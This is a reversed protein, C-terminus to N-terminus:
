VIWGEVEEGEGMGREVGKGACRRAWEAHVAVVALLGGMWVEWAGSGAGVAVWSVGMRLPCALAFLVAYNRVAAHTRHLANTVVLRNTRTSVVQTSLNPPPDTYTALSTILHTILPTL